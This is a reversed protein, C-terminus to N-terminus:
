CRVRGINAKQLGASAPDGLAFLFCQFSIHTANANPRHFKFAFPLPVVADAAAWIKAFWKSRSVVLLAIGNNNAIFKDVWPRPGSFPPNMWVLKGGWNQALGDDLESFWRKAPIWPVGGAPACVDLDFELAMADFLWKPTYYDNTTIEQNVLNFLANQM